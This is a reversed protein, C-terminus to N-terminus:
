YLLHSAEDPFEVDDQEARRQKKFDAFTQDGTAESDQLRDTHRHAHLQNVPKNRSSKSYTTSVAGHNLVVSNHVAETPHLQLSKECAHRDPEM